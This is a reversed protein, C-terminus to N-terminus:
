CVDRASGELGYVAPFGALVSEVLPDLGIGLRHRHKVVLEIPGVNLPAEALGAVWARLALETVRDSGTKQELHPIRIAPHGSHHAPTVAVPGSVLTVQHGRRVAAAVCAYGMKGTSGNSLFRVPDLYERTPGATILIHM